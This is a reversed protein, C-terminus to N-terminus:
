FEIDLDVYLIADKGERIRRLPIGNVAYPGTVLLLGSKLQKLLVVRKGRFQGTLAICVTGPTLSKRLKTPKNKAAKRVSKKKSVEQNLKISNVRVM